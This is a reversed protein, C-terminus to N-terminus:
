EPKPYDPPRGLPWLVQKWFDDAEDWARDVAVWARWAYLAAVFGMVGLVEGPIAYRHMCVGCLDCGDPVLVGCIVCASM